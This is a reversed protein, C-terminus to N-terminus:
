PRPGLPHHASLALVLDSFHKCVTDFQAGGIQGATLLKSIDVIHSAAAALGPDSLNRLISLAENNKNLVLKRSPTQGPRSAGIVHAFATGLFAPVEGLVVPGDAWRRAVQELLPAYGAERVEDDDLERIMQATPDQAAVIRLARRAQSAHYLRLLFLDSEDRADMITEQPFLQIRSLDTERMVYYIVPGAPEIIECRPLTQKGRPVLVPVAIWQLADEAITRRESTPENLLYALMSRGYRAGLGGIVERTHKDGNRYEANLWRIYQTIASSIASRISQERRVGDITAIEPRTKTIDLLGRDDNVIATVFSGRAPLLEYIENGYVEHSFFHVTDSRVPNIWIVGSIHDFPEIPFCHFPTQPGEEPDYGRSSLWEEVIDKATRVDGPVPWGRAGQNIRASAFGVYIPVSIASFYYRVLEELRQPDWPRPGAWAEDKLTLLVKSGPETMTNRRVLDKVVEPVDSPVVDSSSWSQWGSRWDTWWFYTRGDGRLPFTIVLLERCINITSTLGMGFRGYPRDFPGQAGIAEAAAPWKSIHLEGLQSLVQPHFGVGNDTVQLRLRDPVALEIRPAFDADLTGRLACAQLANTVLERLVDAPRFAAPPINALYGEVNIHFGQM